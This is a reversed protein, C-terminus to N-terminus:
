LSAERRGFLIGSPLFWRKKRRGSGGGDLSKGELAARPNDVLLLQATEAGYENCVFDRAPNLDTTRYKLDHADSALFRVLRRSMLTRSFDKARNGFSGLLSQATVQLSCGRRVWDELDEFRKRLLPNREPHTIIPHIGADLMAGFIDTTSKPIFADSFEVLLYGRHNISYKDPHRLSDDINEPTLHFDCGYHIRPTEGALRQLEAIKALVQPPDFQYEPNAHPTAVIDTTGAHAAMQLMALSTEVSDSGDDQAPLIHSHIDIM